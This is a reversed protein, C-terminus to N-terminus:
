VEVKLWLFIHM